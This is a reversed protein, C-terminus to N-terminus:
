FLERSRKSLAAEPKMSCYLFQRRPGAASAAVAAVRAGLPATDTGSGRVGLSFMRDFVSISNIFVRLDSSCKLLASQCTAIFAKATTQCNLNTLALPPSIGELNRLYRYVMSPQCPGTLCPHSPPMRTSSLMWGFRFVANYAQRWKEELLRACTAPEPCTACQM